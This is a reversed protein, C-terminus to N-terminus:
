VITATLGEPDHSDIWVLPGGVFATNDAGYGSSDNDYGITGDTTLNEQPSCELDVAPVTVGQASVHLPITGIVILLVLAIAKRMSTGRNTSKILATGADFPISQM